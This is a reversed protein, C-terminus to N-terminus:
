KPTTRTWKKKIMNYIYEQCEQLIHVHAIRMIAYYLIAAVLIRVILLLYLNTISITLYYTSLMVAAAIAAFPCIDKVLMLLNYGIFRRVQSYWILLWTLQLSVYAIVMTRIGYPWIIMLLIIQTVGLTATVWFYIDSRKKSIIFNNFLTCLPIIAGAICLIRLLFASEIWKETITIIIFEQSVLALGFMMPFSLFATFRVMKRIARLQRETDDAMSALVPQAVQLIMGQITYSAKTNWQSAQNYDGVAQPHFYRGLLINLVNNNIINVIYTLLVKSSFRFMHFAPGFDIHFTPRWSSFHWLMLSNVAVYLVSQTALAWYGCGYWAMIVAASSAIITATISCQAAQKVMLNRFLFAAQATGLSAFITALFAYRCLSVLEPTHYYDAILPACFFLITYLSSGVIINFWFVSNYDNNTPKELNAIATRFGSDQLANAVMTFVVIMATMGFDSRELIRGLVIGFLLGLVQQTANSLGGWFLGRSTKEKLTEM